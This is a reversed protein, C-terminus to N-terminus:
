RVEKPKNAQTTRTKRRERTASQRAIALEYSTPRKELEKVQMTLRQIEADAKTQQAQLDARARLLLDGPTM